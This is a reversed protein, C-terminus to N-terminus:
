YLTKKWKLTFTNSSEQSSNNTVWDKTRIYTFTSWPAGINVVENIDCTTDISKYVQVSGPLEQLLQKNMFSVVENRPALIARQCLWSYDIFHQAVNPFVAEKLEQHTKVIRGIIQMAVCEDQNDPTIVGNGLKKM